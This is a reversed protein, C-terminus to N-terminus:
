LTVRLAERATGGAQSVVLPAATAASCTVADPDVLWSPPGDLRDVLLTCGSQSGGVAFVLTNEDFRFASVESSSNSAATSVTVNPISLQTVVDEPFSELGSNAIVMRGQLQALSLVPTSAVSEMNRQVASYTAVGIGSLIALMFMALAIEAISFGRGRLSVRDAVEELACARSLKVQM